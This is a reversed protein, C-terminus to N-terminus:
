YCNRITQEIQKRGPQPIAIVQQKAIGSFFSFQDTYRPNAILANYIQESFNVIYGNAKKFNWSHVQGPIMFYIQGAEVPFNIFDVSHSGGGKTFYVLHYFPINIRFVCTRTNMWTTHLTTLWLTKQYFRYM